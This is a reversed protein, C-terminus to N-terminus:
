VHLEGFKALFNFTEAKVTNPIQRNTSIKVQKKRRMNSTEETWLIPRYNFM